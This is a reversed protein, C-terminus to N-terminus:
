QPLYDNAEVLKLGPTEAVCQRLLFLHGSGYFVVVRDGPHTAQILRACILFNRRYWAAMLEAGPQTDGGGVRLATRYFANDAAIRAPDNLHRLVGGITGSALLRAVRDVSAKVDANIAELIKTQDHAKAYDAVADYPFEGDVDIGDVTGLGSARALRFGLQVVENRSPPLTGDGYAAYRETVLAAPWEVAVRSPRFRKLADVIGAIEAQRTPALVDDAALNHLDKGPNGMHFTGVLLVAVSDTAATVSPATPSGLMLMVVAALGIRM